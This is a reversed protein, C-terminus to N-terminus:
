NPRCLMSLHVPAAASRRTLLHTISIVVSCCLTFDNGQWQERLDLKTHGRGFVSHERIDLVIPTELILNYLFFYEFPSLAKKELSSRKPMFKKFGM